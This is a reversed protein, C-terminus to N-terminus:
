KEAKIIARKPAPYNDITINQDQPNLFDQLSEFYMWETRKQELTSTQNIDIIEINKFKLKQLWDILQNVSPIFWVNRMKAYRDVPVLLERDEVILTELILEGGAKLQSKLLELHGIPSKRHYLVGMSFVTDFLPMPNPLDEDLLPLVFIPEHPMYHKFVQFQYNFKLMPEIGIVLEAGAGRMRFCHYGSGCGVDLVRKHKLDIHPAIRNWKWDSQWETEIKVGFLDFPGKRWPHLRLLHTKLATKENINLQKRPHVSIEDQTLDVSEIAINELKDLVQNWVKVEGYTRAQLRSDINKKIQDSYKEFPTNSIADFFPKFNFSLNM